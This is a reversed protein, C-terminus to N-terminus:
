ASQSGGWERDRHEERFPRALQDLGHHGPLQVHDPGAKTKLASLNKFKYAHRESAPMDILRLLGPSAAHTEGAAEAM